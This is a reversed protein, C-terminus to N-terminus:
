LDRVDVCPALQPGAQRGAFHRLLLRYGLVPAFPRPLAARLGALWPEPRTHVVYLWDIGRERAEAAIARLLAVGARPADACADFVYWSRLEEGAAPVQPWRRPWPAGARQLARLVRLPAPVREVVEALTGAHCFASAVALGGGARVRWSGVYGDDGQRLEPDSGLGFPGAAAVFAAHAEEYGLADLAVAAREAGAILAVVPCVLYAYRGATDLGMLGGVRAVARNDDVTYAYVLDAHAKSWALGDRALLTAIGQGRAWPAVRLDFAFAARAPAGYWSAPKAAVALTGVLRGASRATLITYDPYREARRHFTPRRFSLRLSGGQACAADLALAEDSEGPAYCGIEVDAM